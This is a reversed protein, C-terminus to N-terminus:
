SPQPLNLEFHRSVEARCGHALALSLTRLSQECDKNLCKGFAIMAREVEGEEVIGLPGWYLRWFDEEAAKRKKADKTTAITAAYTVAESCLNLHRSYSPMRAEVQATAVQLAYTAAEKEKAERDKARSDLFQFLTYAGGAILGVATIGGFVVGWFRASGESMTIRHIM